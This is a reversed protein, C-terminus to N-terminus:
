VNRNANHASLVIDCRSGTVADVKELPRLPRIQSCVANVFHKWIQRRWVTSIAPVQVTALLAGVQTILLPKVSPPEFGRRSEEAPSRAHFSPLVYCRDDNRDQGKIDEARVRKGLSRPGVILDSIILLQQRTIRAVRLGVISQAVRQDTFRAFDAIRVIEIARLLREFTRQLDRRIIGSGHTMERINEVRAM